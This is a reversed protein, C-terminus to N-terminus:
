AQILVTYTEGAAPPEAFSLIVSGEEPCASAVWCEAGGSDFLTVRVFRAGLSHPVTFVAAAGDGTIEALESVAAPEDELPEPLASSSAKPIISPDLKGTEGDIVPVNGKANGATLFAASGLKLRERLSPIDIDLLGVPNDLRAERDTVVTLGSGYKILVTGRNGIYPGSNYGAPPVSKWSLTGSPTIRGGVVMDGYVTLTGGVVMDGSFARDEDDTCSCSHVSDTTGCSDAFKTM